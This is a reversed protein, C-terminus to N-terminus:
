VGLADACACFMSVHTHTVSAVRHYYLPGNHRAGPPFLSMHQHCLALLGPVLPVQYPSRVSYHSGCHM